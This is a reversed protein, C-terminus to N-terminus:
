ALLVLLLWNLDFAAVLGAIALQAGVLAVVFVATAPNTGMLSKIEPHQKLIARRRGIHEDPEDVYTFDLAM